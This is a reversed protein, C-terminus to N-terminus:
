PKKKKLGFIAVKWDKPVTDPQNCIKMTIEAIECKMEKLVRADAGDPGLSKSGKLKELQEIVDNKSVEAKRLAM